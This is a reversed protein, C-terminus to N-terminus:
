IYKIEFNNNEEEFDSINKMKEKFKKLFKWELELLQTNIIPKNTKIFVTKWNQSISILYDKIDINKEELFVECIANWLNSSFTLSNYWKQKIRVKLIDALKYEM